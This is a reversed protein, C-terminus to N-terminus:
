LHVPLSRERQPPYRVGGSCAGPIGRPVPRLSDYRDYHYLTFGAVLTRAADRAMPALPDDGALPCGDTSLRGRVAYAFEPRQTAAGISCLDPWHFRPNSM